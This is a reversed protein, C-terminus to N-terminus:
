NRMKNRMKLQRNLMNLVLSKRQKKPLLNHLRARAQTFTTFSKMAKYILMNACLNISASPKSPTPKTFRNRVSLLNYIKWTETIYPKGKYTTAELDSIIDNRKPNHVYNLSTIEPFKEALHQMLGEIKEFESDFFSIIVMVDGTVATRIVLTRLLGTQERIDFFTLNNALAYEKIALRIKNSPEPQLWCNKIDLVKDFRGPVHFGLADNDTIADRTDMDADTLWRKNSFTYELKNRYYQIEESALIPEPVPLEIRGIRLLVDNTAKEKYFLQDDYSIFQRTCGGCVGFHECFGQIRKESFKHFKIPVAEIYNKKKEVVRLDAVDGPVAQSVFVTIKREDDGYHVKAVAKGEITLDLIEVQEFIPLPKRIRKM